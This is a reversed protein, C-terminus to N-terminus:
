DVDRFDKAHRNVLAYVARRPLWRALLSIGNNFWGNIYVIKDAEAANLAQRAVQEAGMWMYGPMRAVRERTGIVDHFESYTFGPCVACVKIGDGGLEFALSESFKIMWAKKAAYLTHGATGPLHGALSAINIITGRGRAKMAPIFHYCLEAVAILMVQMSDAHASWDSSMYAGPVGYGANNVLIDIEIGAGICRDLIAQPSGPDALDAVFALCDVGYVSRLEVALADLRAQRRAILVLNVGQEAYVKAIAQGIGASAGTVLATRPANM